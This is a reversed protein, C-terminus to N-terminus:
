GRDELILDSMSKRGRLRASPTRSPFKEGNWLVLGSQVLKKMSEEVSMASSIPVIRGVPKGRETVVVTAGAKVTELYESLRAKLERIGAHYESM